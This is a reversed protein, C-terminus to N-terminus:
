VQCVRHYLTISKEVIKDWNFYKVIHQYGASALKEALSPNKLVTIIAQALAKEDKEPVLLGTERDKVIDVIGGVASAIVPKGYSLAEVLVMGLGETDGKHDVIAPLVFLDCGQYYKGLEEEGLRGTFNIKDKLKLSDSLEELQTRLEGDGVIDLKVEVQEAVLPIARILYEMGKREVLRGVFLIKKVEEERKKVTRPSVTFGEPIVEAEIGPYFSQLLTKTYTSNTVVLDAKKIISKLIKKFLFPGKLAFILEASYFKLVLKGQSFKAGLYGAIGLPFPWHVHILDFKRKKCLKIINVCSFFVLFIAPFIYLPKRKLRIPAAEEHTLNEWRKFFYRYRKVELGLITQDGLGKYSPAFVTVEVGKEKLKLLYETLWPAIGIKSDSLQFATVIHCTKM